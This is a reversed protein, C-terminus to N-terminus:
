PRYGHRSPGLHQPLKRYALELWDCLIRRTDRPDIVDEIGFAEATRLPSRVAEFQEVLDARLAAPDDAEALKRKYAAEIGGELPLSGWDGSPWAVRMRPKACDVFAAGAVGFTRRVIVAFYPVALQYLAAIMTAGRRITGAAEAASGIAFGPNDVLSVVPVHFTQCLDVFRTVKEAGDATLAGGWHKPNNAMIGAPRGALRALGTVMSKGWQEGIEFFSDRDVVHEILRRADYVRRRNRPILSLLEQDGRDPPDDTTGVPPLEHVSAPLYSLFRRIQAFAEEESGAVSDVVGNAGHVAVGGLQEKTVQEHSAYEVLPPGAVFVQALGEVMVSFHSMMARAAGLGVVPGVAASCVPVLGLLRAQVDFGPLPPVYTKQEELYTVVSGGGSSGDLLRVMPIQLEESLSEAYVQKEWISADAHGGRVTFDDGGVMVPRGDIRGRGAVFNTPQYEIISGDDGYTVKGTLAGIEQFTGPDLITEIRERVTLKGSRRQRQVREEGGLDAAMRRRAQMEEVEPLWETM